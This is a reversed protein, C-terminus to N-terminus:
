FDDDDDPMESALELELLERDRQQETKESDPKKSDPYRLAKVALNHLELCNKIRTDYAFQPETTRYINETVGSQMYRDVTRTDFVIVADVTDDKIAKAVIYEAEVDTPLQLKLAIDKIPIRSYALSIQRIATRIVNQRLRVILTLTEDNEFTGSFKELVKNFYAIDGLRVAHTLQLYPALTARHISMRFIGREPIEGRLLSIVVVWKHVNQKFGIASDQPAKRLSLQFFQAAEPYQLQLARIRGMYYLYRALDNNNATEPFAVKTVLKAAPLLNKTLLYARLLCVIITAQSEYQHHLTAFRLRSNLYPPLTGIKGTRESILALYFYGKALFPDLSRKDHRDAYEILSKACQMALDYKKEDTLFLLVLLHIYLELEPSPQAAKRSSLLQQKKAASSTVASTASLQSNGASKPTTSVASLSPPKPTDVEMANSEQSSSAVKTPLWGLLQKKQTTSAYLYTNCLKTLIEGNLQKRTRNLFQLVRGVIHTDGRELQNCWERLNEFTISNVDSEDKKKEKESKEPKETKDDKKKKSDAVDVEMPQVTM